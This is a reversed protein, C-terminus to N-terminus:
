PCLSSPAASPSCTGDKHLTALQAELNFCSLTPQPLYLHSQSCHSRKGDKMSTGTFCHRLFSVAPPTSPSPHISQLLPPPSLYLPSLITYLIHTFNHRLFSVAPLTPPPPPPHDLPPHVFAFCLNPPSLPTYFFSSFFSLTRAFAFCSIVM